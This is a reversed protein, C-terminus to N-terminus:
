GGDVIEVHGTAWNVRVRFAQGGRAFRLIGGCSTGDARFVIDVADRSAGCRGGATLALDVDAPIAVRHEGTRLTRSRRDFTAATDAAHAIAATRADRLLAATNALLARFRVPTTGQPLNPFALVMILGALALAAVVEILLYGAARDAVVARDNGAPSTPPV